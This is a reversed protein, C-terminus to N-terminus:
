ESGSLIVRLYKDNFSIHINITKPIAISARQCPCSTNLLKWQLKVYEM